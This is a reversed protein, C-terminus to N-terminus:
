GRKIDNKEEEKRSLYAKIFLWVLFVVVGILFIGLGAWMVNFNKIPTGIALFLIAGVSMLVISAILLIKRM